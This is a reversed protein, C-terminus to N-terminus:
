TSASPKPTTVHCLAVAYGRAAAEGAFRARDAALPCTNDVVISRRDAFAASYAVTSGIRTWSRPTKAAM